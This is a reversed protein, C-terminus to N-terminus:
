LLLSRSPMLFILLGASGVEWSSSSFRQELAKVRRAADGVECAVMRRGVEGGVRNVLGSSGDSRM